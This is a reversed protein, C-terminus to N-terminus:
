RFAAAFRARKRGTRSRYVRPRLTARHVHCPPRHHAAQRESRYAGRRRQRSLIALGIRLHLDVQGAARDAYLRRHRLREVVRGLIAELRDLRIRAPERRRGLAVHRSEEYPHLFSSSNWAPRFVNGAVALASCRAPTVRTPVHIM